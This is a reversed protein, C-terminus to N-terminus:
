ARRGANLLDRVQSAVDRETSIPLLPVHRQRAIHRFWDLREQFEDAYRRRLGSDSTDLELQREGEAVVWKGADPLRAELPDYVLVALVDNHAALLTALRETEESAGCGDGILCVLYDHTALRHARRLAEHFMEPNPERDLDASLAHGKDVITKLIQMVRRRSRHPPIEVVERDDYVLAGVRDGAHFVRWAALAAAEAAAVSKMARRSGFFMTRRQDVVLLCPRDREETYVRVHPKQLRATVRWDMNRIDDGPLYRRIEEFNLGRGRLRSAHRGALISHVPQRPLFSFGRAKFELKLLETLYAHVAHPPGDAARKRAAEADYAPLVSLNM